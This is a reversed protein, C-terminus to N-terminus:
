GGLCFGEESLQLGNYTIRWNVSMFFLLTVFVFNEDKFSRSFLISVLELFTKLKKRGVSKKPNSLGTKAIALKAWKDKGRRRAVASAFDFFSFEGGCLIARSRLKNARASSTGFHAGCAYPIKKIKTQM